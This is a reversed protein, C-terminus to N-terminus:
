VYCDIYYAEIITVPHKVERKQKIKENQLRVKAMKEALEEPTM